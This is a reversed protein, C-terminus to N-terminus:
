KNKTVTKFFQDRYNNDTYENLIDDYNSYFEPSLKTIEGIYYGDLARLFMPEAVKRKGVDYFIMPNVTIVPM